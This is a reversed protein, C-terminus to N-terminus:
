VGPGGVSGMYVIYLLLTRWSQVITEKGGLDEHSCVCCHTERHKKQGECM